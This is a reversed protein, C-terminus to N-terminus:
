SRDRECHRGDGSAWWARCPLLAPVRSPRGRSADPVLLGVSGRGMMAQRRSSPSLGGGAAGGGRLRLISPLIAFHWAWAMPWSALKRWRIVSWRGEDRLAPVRRSTADICGGRASLCRRSAQVRGMPRLRPSIGPSPGDATRQSGKQGGRSCIEQSFVWASGSVRTVSHLRVCLLYAREDRVRAKGEGTWRESSNAVPGDAEARGGGSWGDSIRPGHSAPRGGEEEGMLGGADGTKLAERTHSGPGDRMSAARTMRSARQHRGPTADLTADRATRGAWVPVREHEFVVLVGVTPQPRHPMNTCRSADRHPSVGDVISGLGALGAKSMRPGPCAAPLNAFVM